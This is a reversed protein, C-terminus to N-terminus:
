ACCFFNTSKKKKKAYKFYIKYIDIKNINEYQEFDKEYITLLDILMNTLFKDVTEKKNTSIEYVDRDVKSSNLNENHTVIYKFLKLKNLIGINASGTFDSESFYVVAHVSSLYQRMTENNLDSEDTNIIHLNVVSNNVEFTIYRHEACLIRNRNNVKNNFIIALAQNKISLSEGIFLIRFNFEKKPNVIEM